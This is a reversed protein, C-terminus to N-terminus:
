GQFGLRCEPHATSAENGVGAGDDASEKELVALRPTREIEGLLLAVKEDGGLRCLFKAFREFVFPEVVVYISLRAVFKQERQEFFRFKGFDGLLYLFAPIRVVVLKQFKRDLDFRLADHATVLIQQHEFRNAVDGDERRVLEQASTFFALCLGADRQSRLSCTSGPHM